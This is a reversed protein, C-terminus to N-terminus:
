ATSQYHAVLDKFRNHAEQTEQIVADEALSGMVAEWEAASDCTMRRFPDDYDRSRARVVREVWAQSLEAARALARRWPEAPLGDGEVEYLGRLIQYAHRAVDEPYQDWLRDYEEHVEEWRTFEGARLRARLIEVEPAPVLQGGLNVWGPAGNGAGFWEHLEAPGDMHRSRMAELLTRMAYFELADRYARWAAAAKLLRAPRRSRELGALRLELREVAEAEEALLKRGILALDEAPAEDPPIEGQELVARGVAQEILAAGRLMEDATDPALVDTVIHQRRTVRQDRRRGNREQRVLMYANELLAFAPTVRLEGDDGRAVLSFPFPINLEAPYDGKVVMVFSAFRSPYRFSTCLGPFFGRGALFEWDAGRSNHNSGITAGAAINTQGLLTAAILFSNNHHQQHHPYTLVSALEACAIHANDAIFCHRLRAGQDLRVSSGFVFREARVGGAITCGAGVIGDRLTVDDGITVPEDATSRITLNELRSAGDITADTGIATDIVSGTNIIATRDGVTGYYGPRRDFRADTLEKFRELLQADDRHRSWLWADAPLIGDFALIRRRGNENGLDIWSRAEEPEEGKLIGHGFRADPGVAMRGVNHLLVDDGLLYYALYRAHHIVPNEGIDCAVITSHYLGVPLKLGAVEHVLNGLNGIRVLGCFRCGVVQRPNFRDGVQVSSWDDSSCGNQQLADIEGSKLPRYTHLGPQLADRLAREQESPPLYMPGTLGYGLDRAPHKVIKRM